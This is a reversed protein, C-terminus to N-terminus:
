RVEIEMEMEEIVRTAEHRQVKQDNTMGENGERLAGRLRVCIVGAEMRGEGLKM